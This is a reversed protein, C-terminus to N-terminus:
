GTRGAGPTTEPREGQSGSEEKQEPLTGSTEVRQVTRRVILGRAEMEKLRREWDKLQKDRLVQNLVQATNTHRQTWTERSTLDLKPNLMMERSQALSERLQAVVEGRARDEESEQAEM